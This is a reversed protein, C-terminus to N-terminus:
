HHHRNPREVCAGFEVTGSFPGTTYSVEVGRSQSNQVEFIDTTLQNANNWDVGSEWGELSGLQGGSFTFGPLATPAVTLYGAYLAGTSFTTISTKGPHTGLSVAGGNSGIEITFQLEGTSKQLEVLGNAVEAGNSKNGGSTGTLGYAYGDM